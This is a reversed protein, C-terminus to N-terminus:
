LNIVTRSLSRLSDVSADPTESEDLPVTNKWIGRLVRITRLGFAKAPKIDADLRDGIMVSEEPRARASRLALSFMEPNPKNFGMENSISISKWYNLLRWRALWDRIGARQNAIIGLSYQEALGPIVELVDDFPKWLNLYKENLEDLLKRAADTRLLDQSCFYDTLSRYGSVVRSDFLSRMWEVSDPHQIPQRGEILRGLRVFLYNEAESEDVITNGLDFFLWRMGSM